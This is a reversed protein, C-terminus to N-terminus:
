QLPDNRWTHEPVHTDQRTGYEYQWVFSPRALFIHHFIDKELIHPCCARSTGFRVGADHPRCDFFRSQLHKFSATSLHRSFTRLYKSSPQRLLLYSNSRRTRRRSLGAPISMQIELKAPAFCRQTGKASAIDLPIVRRLACFRRNLQHTTSLLMNPQPQPTIPSNPLNPM